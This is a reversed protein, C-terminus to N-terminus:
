RSPFIDSNPIPLEHPTDWSGVWATMAKDSIFVGKEAEAHADLLAQLKYDRADLFDTIAKQALWSLSRDEAIAAPELRAKLTEDMRISVPHAM